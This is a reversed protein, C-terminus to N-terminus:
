CEVGVMSLRQGSKQTYCRTRRRPLCVHRLLPYMKLSSASPWAPLVMLGQGTSKSLKQFGTFYRLLFFLPSRPRYKYVNACIRGSSKTLHHLLKQGGPGPM